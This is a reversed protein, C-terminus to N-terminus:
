IYKIVLRSVGEGDKGDKRSSFDSQMFSHMKELYIWNGAYKWKVIVGCDSHVYLSNFETYEKNPLSSWSGFHCRSSEVILVDPEVM